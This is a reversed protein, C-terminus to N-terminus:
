LGPAPVLDGELATGPWIVREPPWPWLLVGEGFPLIKTAGVVGAPLLLLLGVEFEPLMLFLLYGSRVAQADRLV